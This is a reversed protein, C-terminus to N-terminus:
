ILHLKTEISLIAQSQLSLEEADVISDLEKTFCDISITECMKKLKKSSDRSADPDSNAVARKMEQICEKAEDMFDVFLENFNELEIGIKAAAIERAYHVQSDKKSEIPIEAKAEFIDVSKLEKKYALKEIKEYFINLSKKIETSDQSNNIKNLIEFIDEIRLNAAVGKLKHSLIKVNEISHESLSIYLDAKFENAQAIFDQIFEEILELPLGLEECAQQPNYVYDSVIELFQGYHLLPPEIKIRKPVEIDEYVLDLAEDEKYVDIVIDEFTEFDDIQIGDEVTLELHASEQTKASEIPEKKPLESETQDLARLNLLHVAYGMNDPEEKLYIEKIDLSCRFKKGNVSIIVKSEQDPEACTVFDIWHIHKFNHVYGPTKVFLDAFDNAVNILQSLTSFGLIRLSVGDIGIFKKQHNYILM